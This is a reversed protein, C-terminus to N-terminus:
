QQRHIEADCTDDQYVQLPIPSHGNCKRINPSNEMIIFSHKENSLIECFHSKIRLALKHHRLIRSSPM